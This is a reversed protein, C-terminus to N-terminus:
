LFAPYKDPRVLPRYETPGNGPGWVCWMIEMTPGGKNLFDPRWLLPMILRPTYRQWIRHRKAAHWYTAKLVLAIETVGIDFAHEIFASALDFPPNTIVCDARKESKLFNVRSEGYGRDAIDTSIVSLGTAEIERAMM